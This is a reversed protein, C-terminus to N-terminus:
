RVSCGITQTLLRIQDVVVRAAERDLAATPEDVILLEPLAVRAAVAVV